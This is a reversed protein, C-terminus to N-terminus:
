VEMIEKEKAQGHRAIDEIFKDTIKQLDEEGKLRDDETILKEKEYERIDNHLDRRINRVAVRAEELRHHMQKVLTRRREEDLPPLNLHIVKGDSNPNLGLNSTRIAKEINKISAADFPKILITRPEPISISALQMLHTPTGYYEVPLREVLAPSARGTRIGALDDSLSQIAGHMRTEADKLLDKIEETSM